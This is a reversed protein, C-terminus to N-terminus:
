RHEQGGVPNNPVADARQGRTVALAEHLTEFIHDAGILDSLRHRDLDARLSSKPHVFVSTIGLRILDQQLDRLVRVATYDVCTVVGADVVLWNVPAAAGDVLGRVDEAFRSANACFVDAGFQFIVLGPREIRAARGVDGAM